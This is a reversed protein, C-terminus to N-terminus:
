LHHGHPRNETLITGCAEIPRPMQTQADPATTKKARHPLTLGFTSEASSHRHLTRSSDARIGLISLENLPDSDGNNWAKYVKGKVAQLELSGRVNLKGQSVISLRSPV